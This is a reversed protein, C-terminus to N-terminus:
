GFLDAKRLIQKLRDINIPKSAFDDSGAEKATDIYSQATYATLCCIYPRQDPQSASLHSRIERTALPGDCVPMSYDMLILRYM